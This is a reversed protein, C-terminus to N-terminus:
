EIARQTIPDFFHARCMDFAIRIKEGAGASETAPVRALFPNAAAALRLCTEAGMPEVTQVVAELTWAAPADPQCRRVNEPRLGLIVKQGIYNGLKAAAAQDLPLALGAPEGARPPTAKFCLTKEEASLTGEFFSMGPFGIFGAVFLNAPHQYIKTPAAVQQLVGERIVAIRDGLAMAEAQDHTVYIMTAGLRAHLQAIEARMHARMPADLNSLPEDFLFVKPRRVLARGVAVRQRQGGSLEMPRRDLCDSLGLIRAAAEVRREIEAKPCRRLKLGFAMNEYATLHPYLAPHQFVMAVERDKPLVRNVVRGDIGITGSTPEELGAILRLTTTKGCGSPGVLVLLEREAISLSLDDVAVVRRGKPGQFIKTLHEVVVSAM